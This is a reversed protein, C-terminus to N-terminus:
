RRYRSISWAVELGFASFRFIFVHRFGAFVPSVGYVASFDVCFLIASSILKPLIAGCLAVVVLLFFVTARETLCPM